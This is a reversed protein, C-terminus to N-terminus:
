SKRTVLELSASSSTDLDSQRRSRGEAEVGTDSCAFDPEAAGLSLHPARASGSNSVPPDQGALLPSAGPFSFQPLDLAM